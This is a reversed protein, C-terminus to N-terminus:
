RPLWIRKAVVCGREEWGRQIEGVDLWFRPSHAHEGEVRGPLTRAHAWEHILTEIAIEFGLGPRLRIDFYGKDPRPVCEGLHEPSCDKTWRVRVPFPAPYVCSLWLTMRKVADM